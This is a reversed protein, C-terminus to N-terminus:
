YYDAKKVKYQWDDDSDEIDAKTGIFGGSRFRTLCLSTADVYDDYRGSPFSAIEEILDDAWPKVPAWVRKSAFIDSIAHLRAIKNNPSNATGRSPTYEQVPIGARRLETILPAGSAKKEIIVCDPEWKKYLEFAKAKLEPFELKDRWANLLILNPQDDDNPNNWVGFFVAVSYDASNKAEHATDMAMIIYDVDPPNKKEWIQWWDRKIIANEDSTPQQQYQANWKGLGRASIDARVAELEEISWYEPWLPKGSPLIAPFEFVEWEETAGTRHANELVQGTLDRLSWRTQVIIIAGGPQLRQRIGSTYWDYVKDYIGPNALSQIAEAETHPDDVIALDAGRGALAAGVGTAYYDGGHNTNWRGAAKSDSRLEVDPFIDRYAETDLLNRVKRGFGEALEATNSVQLVKKKPFKGLIWAPLLYSAFESKTHRPALNIIVRKKKGAAIDEFVKAIRRHHAGCVFDPWQTEVFALFNNQAKDRLKRKELEEVIALLKVKEEANAKKLAQQLVNPPLDLSQSVGDM